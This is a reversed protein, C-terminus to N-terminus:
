RPATGSLASASTTLQPAAAALVWDPLGLCLSEDAELKEEEEAIQADLADLQRTLEKSLAEFSSLAFLHGCGSFALFQPGSSVGRPACGERRVAHLADFLERRQERLSRLDGRRLQVRSVTSAAVRLDFGDEAIM